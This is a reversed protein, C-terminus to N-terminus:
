GIKGMIFEAGFPGFVDGFGCCCYGFFACAVWAIGDGRILLAFILACVLRLAGEGEGKARLLCGGCGSCANAHRSCADHFRLLLMVCGFLVAGCASRKSRYLLIRSLTHFWSFTRPPTSHPTTCAAQQPQSCCTATRRTAGTSNTDCTRNVEVVIVDGVAFSAFTSIGVARRCGRDSFVDVTCVLSRSDLTGRM